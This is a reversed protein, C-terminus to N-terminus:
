GRLWDWHLWLSLQVESPASVVIQVESPALVVIQVESPAVVALLAARGTLAAVGTVLGM